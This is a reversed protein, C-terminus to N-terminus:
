VEAWLSDGGGAGRAGDPGDGGPHPRLVRRVPDPRHHTPPHAPRAPPLANRPPLTPHLLHLHLHIPRPELPRHIFCWTPLPAAKQQHRTPPPPSSPPRRLHPRMQRRRHPLHAHARHRPRRLPPNRQRGPHNHHILSAFLDNCDFAICNLPKTPIHPLGRVMDFRLSVGQAAEIVIFKERVHAAATPLHGAERVLVSFMERDVM